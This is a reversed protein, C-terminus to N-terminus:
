KFKVFGNIVGASSDFEKVIAGTALDFSYMTNSTPTPASLYLKKADWKKAIASSSVKPLTASLEGQATKGYLDIKVYQYGAKKDDDFPYNDPDESKLTLAKGGGYYFFGLGEAGLATKLNFFYSNDFTTQGNKIRVIGSPVNTASNGTGMVYIDNNEDLLMSSPGFGSATGSNWIMSCRGDAILKEVSNTKLNVVAVYVSDGLNSFTSTQYNVGMFLYDDRHTMGLYFVTKGLPKQISTLDITTTIQMTTPNFKVLKPVGGFGNSAAYAETESIFDVAGFTKLGQVVIAGLEKPKGDDGFGYKRLTAPAGFTILYQSKNYSYMIGSGTLEAAVSTGVAGTPQKEFGSFYATQNPSIGGTVMMAYELLEGKTKPTEEEKEKCANLLLCFTALVVWAATSKQMIKM